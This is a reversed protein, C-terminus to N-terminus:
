LKLTGTVGMHINGFADTLGDVITTDVMTGDGLKVGNRLHMAHPTQSMSEQGGAVVVESEGSKIAIYGNNIARIGFSLNIILDLYKFFNTIINTYLAQVCSFM